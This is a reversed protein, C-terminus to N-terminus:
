MRMLKKQPLREQLQVRQQRRQLQPRLLFFVVALERRQDDLVVAVGGEDSM